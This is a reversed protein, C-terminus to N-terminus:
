EIDGTKELMQVYESAKIERLGDMLTAKSQKPLLLMYKKDDGPMKGWTPRLLYNGEVFWTEGDFFGEAIQELKKYKKNIEDIEQQLQRGEATKKGPKFYDGKKVKVLFPLQEPHRIGIIAHCDSNEILNEIKWRQLLSKIDKIREEFLSIIENNRDLAMGAEIVFYRSKMVESM